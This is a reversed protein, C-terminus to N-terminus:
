IKSFTRLAVFDLRNFFTRVEFDQGFDQGFTKALDQFFNQTNKAWVKGLSEALVKSKGLNKSKEL